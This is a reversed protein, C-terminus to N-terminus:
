ATGYRDLWQGIKELAQAETLSSAMRLVPEPVWGPFPEDCRKHRGGPLHVEVIRDLASTPLRHAVRVFYPWLRRHVYTIRGGALSCVLVAKSARVEQTLEFIEHGRAHSWWSGRIPGGVIRAALTPEEGRASELVVGTRRVFAIAQDRTVSGGGDM